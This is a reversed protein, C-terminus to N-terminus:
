VASRKEAVLRLIIEAARESSSEEGCRFTQAAERLDRIQKDRVDSDRFLRILADAILDARCRSQLFEPCVERGLALNIISVHKIKIMLRIILATLWSLRYAIVMPVGAIALESTVTGSAALAADSAAFADRKADLGTTITVPVTWSSTGSLVSQEVAKVTPVVVRIDPIQMHLIRVVEAFIPLHRDVEEQRSGPLVCLLPQKQAIGHKRRFGQGDGKDLDLEAIPNGVFTSPLGWRTFYPEEFPFIMLLHDLFGAIMRARRPRWAWVSPAVYHVLKPGAGKLKKGVRFAFAPSDITVVVDPNLTKVRAATENIRRLARPIHPIIEVIGGISLEKMPFFSRFGHSAGVAIMEDGGIGSFRINGATSKILAAMLGNGMHDGSPEGAIICIHPTDDDPSDKPKEDAAM